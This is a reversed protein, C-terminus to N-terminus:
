LERGYQMMLQQHVLKNWRADVLAHHAPELPRIKEKVSDVGLSQSMQYLDFCVLPIGVGADLVGQYGGFLSHVLVIDWASKWGYFKADHDGAMFDVLQRAIQFSHGQFIAQSATLDFLHPVVHETLWDNKVFQYNTDVAYFERGDQAVIGVSLMFKSKEDFETDLYYRM